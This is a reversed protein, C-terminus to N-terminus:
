AHWGGDPIPFPLHGQRSVSRAQCRSSWSEFRRQTGFTMPDNPEQSYVGWPSCTIEACYLRRRWWSSAWGFTHSTVPTAPKM